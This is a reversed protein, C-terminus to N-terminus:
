QKLLIKYYSYLEPYNDELYNSHLIYDKFLIAFFERENTTAYDIEESDSLVNELNMYEFELYNDKYKDYLALFEETGSKYGLLYDYYHGFEHILTNREQGEKSADIYIVKENYDTLGVADDLSEKLYISWGDKNFSYLIDYPIKSLNDQYININSVGEDKIFTVDITATNTESDYNISDIKEQINPNMSLLWCLIIVIDVFIIIKRFM